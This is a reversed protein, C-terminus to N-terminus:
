HNSGKLCSDFFQSTLTVFKERNARKEIGHGEHSVPLFRGLTTKLGVITVGQQTYSPQAVKKKADDIRPKLFTIPELQAIFNSLNESIDSSM